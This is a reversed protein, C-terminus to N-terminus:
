LSFQMNETSRPDRFKPTATRLKAGGFRRQLGRQAIFRCNANAAPSWRQRPYIVIRYPL